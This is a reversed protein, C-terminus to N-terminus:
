SFFVCYIGKVQLHDNLIQCNKFSPNYFHIVLRSLTTSFHLVEKEHNVETLYGWTTENSDAASSSAACKASSNSKTLDELRKSRLSEFFTVDEEENLLCDIEHDDACCNM